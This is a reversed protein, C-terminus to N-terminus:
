FLMDFVFYLNHVEEFTSLFIGIYAYLQRTYFILDLSFCKLTRDFHDHSDGTVKSLLFATEAMLMM